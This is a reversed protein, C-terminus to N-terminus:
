RPSLPWSARLDDSANTFWGGIALRREDVGEDDCRRRPDGDVAPGIRALLADFRADWDTADLEDAVEHAVAAQRSACAEDAYCAAALAGRPAHWEAASSWLDSEPIRFTHDLDWAVSVMPGDDPLWVKYNNRLLVYTDDNGIWQEVAFQRHVADWDVADDLAVPIQGTQLTTTVGDSVVTLDAPGLDEGEKLDFDEDHGLGFDVFRPLWRTWRYSGDYLRGDNHGFTQELWEDDQTEVVVYLGWDEGNVFLQAYGMRSTAVGAASYVQSGLVEAMGSCDSNANNLSLAKKGHLRTDDVYRNFDLKLKPKRAWRQFSGSGGRLRLGITGLDEGDLAATTPVWSRDETMVRETALIEASADDVNLDIRNVRESDFLWTDDVHETPPDFVAPGTGYDTSACGLLVLTPLLRMM